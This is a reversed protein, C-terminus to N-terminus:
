AARGTPLHSLGTWLLADVIAATRAADPRRGAELRDAWHRAAGLVYAVLGRSLIEAEADGVRTDEALIRSVQSAVAREVAEVRARVQPDHEAGSDFLLRHSRGPSGMYAFVAEVTAHVRHRNDGPSSMAATLRGTLDAVETDLLELFLEHKGLFHQYLVPKSVAAAEAIQDMATGAYGREVFVGRACGLLQRRRQARPMRVTRERPGAGEGPHVSM